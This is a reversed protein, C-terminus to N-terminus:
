YLEAYRESIKKWSYEREAIENLVKGDLDERDLLSVLEEVDKFYYGEGKMSERNYNVDFALIPKGFYMAEVLSPNTGGASHGHIYCSCNNRLAYLEDLDYLSTIMHINGFAQYRDKLGRSYESRDWNGVFVLEKGSEAFAECILHSNNEPEIRCISVAYSGARVGYKSLIEEERGHSVERKVHDYGYAILVSPKGYTETVYDQIGKNDAVIVDAFRVAMKESVKLFWKAFRGWKARRHELGDINVILKRRYLLRFFPLFVCGSTGLVLVADYGRVCSIMSLIDYPTSQAGNAHFLPIYRLRAGKYSELRGTAYDRASCLVTYEVGEPCNDGIINEVLTEFGGYKAPVGQIGIVAVKKM